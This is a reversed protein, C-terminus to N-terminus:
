VNLPEPRFVPEWKEHGQELTGIGLNTLAQPSNRRFESDIRVSAAEHKEHAKQTHLEFLRVIAASAFKVDLM